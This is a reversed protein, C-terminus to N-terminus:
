ERNDYRIFYTLLDSSISNTVELEHGNFTIKKKQNMNMYFQMKNPHYTDFDTSSGDANKKKVDLEFLFQSYDPLYVEKDVKSTKNYLGSKVTYVSLKNTLNINVRTNNDFYSYVTSFSRGDKNDILDGRGNENIYLGEVEYNFVRREGPAMYTLPSVSLDKVRPHLENDTRFEQYKAGRIDTGDYIYKYSKSLSYSSPILKLKVQPVRVVKEVPKIPKLENADTTYIQAGNADYVVPKGDDDFGVAFATIKFKYVNEWNLFSEIDTVFKTSESQYWNDASYGDAFSGTAGNVGPLTGINVATLSNSNAKPHVTTGFDTKVKADNAEWEGSSNDKYRDLKWFYRIGTADPVESWEIFSDFSTGRLVNAPALLEFRAEPTYPDIEPVQFILENSVLESGDVTREKVKFKVAIVMGSCASTLYMAGTDTDLGPTIGNKTKPFPNSTVVWDILPIAGAGTTKSTSGDGATYTIEPTFNYIIYGNGIQTHEDDFFNSLLGANTPYKGGTVIHIVVDKYKNVNDVSVARIRFTSNVPIEPSVTLNGDVLTVMGDMSGDPLEWRVGYKRSSYESKAKVEATFEVNVATVNDFKSVNQPGAVLVGARYVYIDDIFDTIATEGTKVITDADSTVEINNRLSVIQTSSVEKGGSIFTVTFSVKNNEVDSLDFSLDAVEDSLVGSDITSMVAVYDDPLTEFWKSCVKVSSAEPVVEEAAEESEDESGDESEDSEEVPTFNADIEDGDYTLKTVTIGQKPTGADIIETQTFMYLSKNDAGFCIANSSELVYDRIQNVVIQQEYQLGVDNSTTKYSNSGFSIFGYVAVSAIAAIAFAILLEVLSFGKNNIKNM